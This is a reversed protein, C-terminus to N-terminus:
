KIIKNSKNGCICKIPQSINYIDKGEKCYVKAVKLIKGCVKCQVDIYNDGQAFYKVNDGRFRYEENYV